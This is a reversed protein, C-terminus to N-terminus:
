CYFGICTPPPPPPLVPPPPPPVIIVVPPPPVNLNPRNQQNNGEILIRDFPEFNVGRWDGTQPGGFGNTMQTLWDPALWPPFQGNEVLVRQTGTPGSGGQLLALLAAIEANSLQHPAADGIKMGYGVRSLRYGPLDLYDGYLFAVFVSGDALV